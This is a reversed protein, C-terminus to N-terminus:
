DAEWAARWAPLPPPAPAADFFRRFICWEGPHALVLDELWRAVAAHLLGAERVPGHETGALAHLESSFRDPGVRFCTGGALVAGSLAALRAPGAPLRVEHAGLRAPAGRSFGAGDVLLGVIGGDELFRVLSRPSDSPRAVDIGALRKADSVTRRWSPAYQAETVVRIPRGLRALAQAGLEWNGLHATCMVLGRGADLAQRVGPGVELPNRAPDDAQGRGLGRLYEIVFRAYAEGAQRAIRDHPGAPFLAAANARAGEHRSPAALRAARASAAAVPGDWRAPLVRALLALLRLSPSSSRIM